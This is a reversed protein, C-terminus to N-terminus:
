LQSTLIVLFVFIPWTEHQPIIGDSSEFLYEVNHQINCPRLRTDIKHSHVNQYGISTKNCNTFPWSFSSLYDGPYVWNLVYLQRAM